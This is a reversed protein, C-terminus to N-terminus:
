EYNKRSAAGYSRLLPPPLHGHVEIRSGNVVRAVAVIAIDERTIEFQRSATFALADPCAVAVHRQAARLYARQRGDAGESDHRSAIEAIALVAREVRVSAIQPVQSVRSKDLCNRGDTFVAGQDHEGFAAAIDELPVAPGAHVALLQTPRGYLLLEAVITTDTVLATSRVLRFGPLLEVGTDSADTVRAEGDVPRALRHVVRLDIAGVELLLFPQMLIAREDAADDEIVFQFPLVLLEQLLAISAFRVAVAPGISRKLLNMAAGEFVFEWLVVTVDLEGVRGDLVLVAVPMESREVDLDLRQPGL